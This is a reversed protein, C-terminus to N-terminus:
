KFKFVVKTDFKISRRTNNTNCVISAVKRGPYDKRYKNYYKADRWFAPLKKLNITKIDNGTCDISHIDTLGNVDLSKLQNNDCRLERIGSNLTISTLKNFSCDLKKILSYRLDLETLRNSPCILTELSPFKSMDFSTISQKVCRLEKLNNLETWKMRNFVNTNGTIDLSELKTCNSIDLINIGSRDIWLTKLKRCNSLDLSGVSNRKEVTAYNDDLHPGLVLIELDENVSLDIDELHNKACRLEKLKKNYSLDINTLENDTLELKELDFCTRIDISKIEDSYFEMEKLKFCGFVDVDAIHCNNCIIMKLNTDFNLDINIADKGLNRYMKLSVLRDMSSLDVTGTLNNQSVELKELSTFYKIGKLSKIETKRLKMELVYETETKSLYGDKDQDYRNTVIKRFSEDPFNEENLEIYKDGTRPTEDVIEKVNMTQVNLYLAPRIIHEYTIIGGSDPLGGEEDSLLATFDTLRYGTPKAPNRLWCWAGDVYDFSYGIREHERKYYASVSDGIYDSAYCIRLYDDNGFYKWAENQSLLFVKDTTQENKYTVKEYPVRNRPYIKKYFNAPTTLESEVILKQEEPTFAKNLFEDNMWARLSCTKWTVFKNKVNYPQRDLGKKSVILANGDQVDLVIWEIPRVTGDKDQPYSGYTIVDGTRVPREVIREIKEPTEDTKAPTEEPLASIGKSAVVAFCAFALLVVIISLCVTRKVARM